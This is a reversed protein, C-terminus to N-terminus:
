RCDLKSTLKSLLSKDIQISSTYPQHIGSQKTRMINITPVQLNTYAMGAQAKEPILPMACVAIVAIAASKPLHKQIQKWLPAAEPGAKRAHKEILVQVPDVGALKALKVYTDDSLEGKGSALLSLSSNNLNMIKALERQSSAGSNTQARSLLERIEM